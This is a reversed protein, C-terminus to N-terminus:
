VYSPTNAAQTDEYVRHVWDHYERKQEERLQTLEGQWKGEVM